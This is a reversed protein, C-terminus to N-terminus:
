DLTVWALLLRAIAWVIAAVILVLLGVPVARWYGGLDAPIPTPLTALNTM